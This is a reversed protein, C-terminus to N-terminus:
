TDRVGLDSYKLTASLVPSFSPLPAPAHITLSICVSVKKQHALIGRALRALTFLRLYQRFTPSTVYKRVAYSDLVAQPVCKHFM